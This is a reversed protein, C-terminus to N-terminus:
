QFTMDLDQEGAGVDVLASPNLTAGSPSMNTLSGTLPAAGYYWNPGDLDPFLYRGASNTTTSAAPVSIEDVCVYLFVSAGAIPTSTSSNSITGSITPVPDSGPPNPDGSVAACPDTAHVLPSGLGSLALSTLLVAALSVRTLSLGKM